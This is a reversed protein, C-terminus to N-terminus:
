LNVRLNRHLLFGALILLYRSASFYRWYSFNVLRLLGTLLDGVAWSLLMIQIAYSSSYIGIPKLLNGFLSFILDGIYDM